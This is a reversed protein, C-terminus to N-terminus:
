SRLTQGPFHSPLPLDPSLFMTTVLVIPVLVIPVLSAALTLKTCIEATGM